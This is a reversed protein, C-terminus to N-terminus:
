QLFRRHHQDIWGCRAFVRAAFLDYIEFAPHLDGKFLYVPKLNRDFRHHIFEGDPATMMMRDRDLNELYRDLLEHSSLDAFPRDSYHLGQLLEIVVLAERQLSRREDAPLSADLPAAACPSLALWALGLLELVIRRM